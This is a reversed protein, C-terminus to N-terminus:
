SAGSLDTGRIAPAPKGVMELQNLRTACFGKVAPNEAQKLLLQFATKAIDFRDGHLLRQYYAECISLLARTEIAPQAPQGGRGPDAKPEIARQLEALSEDFNGRDASAIIDVTQALFSVLPAPARGKLAAQAIPEAERFLNNAIALRFILEYTEQADRPSQAAALKALKDLRQKELELLKENYEDNIAQIGAGGQGATVIKPKAPTGEDQGPAGARVFVRSELVFPLMVTTACVLGVSTIRTFNM